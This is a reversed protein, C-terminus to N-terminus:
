TVSFLVTQFQIKQQNYVDKILMPRSISKDFGQVPISPMELLMKKLIILPVCM